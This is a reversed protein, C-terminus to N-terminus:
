FTKHIENANVYTITDAISEFRVGYSVTVWEGESPIQRLTIVEGTMPYPENSETVIDGLNFGAM